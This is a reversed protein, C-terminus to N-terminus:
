LAALNLVVMDGDREVEVDRTGFPINHSHTSPIIVSMAKGGATDKRVRYEGADHFRFALRGNGDSYVDAAGSVNESHPVILFASCSGSRRRAVGFKTRAKKASFNNRGTFKKVKTWM